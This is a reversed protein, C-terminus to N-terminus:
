CKNVEGKKVSTRRGSVETTGKKLKPQCGVELNCCLKTPIPGNHWVSMKQILTPSYLQKIDTLMPMSWTFKRQKTWHTWETCAGAGVVVGVPAQSGDVLGVVCQETFEGSAEQFIEVKVIVWVLYKFWM